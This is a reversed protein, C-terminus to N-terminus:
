PRRAWTLGDPGGGVDLHSTVTLTKLDVVAVYNAATCGVFARSGDPDMLIGACGRGLSMRHIEKRSAVDYVFLDGTSLISILVRKGDRTFKLRNAGNLKADISVSVKRQVTDIIWLKGDSAAATWLEKWDPSVDFGETGLSTPITTVSWERQASAPPTPHGPDPLMERNEIISISASHANSVFVTQGDSTVRILHTFDQGTGMIWETKGTAPDLRGISKAGQATFWVKGGEFDLGHLGVMPATDISPLAKHNVLDLVDLEHGQSNLMNSVWARTGDTSAIVEHPDPGVPMKAIIGLTVPDVISLTHDTKSLALLLPHEAAQGWGGPSACLAVGLTVAAVWLSSMRSCM